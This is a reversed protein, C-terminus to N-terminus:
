DRVTAQKRGLFSRRAMDLSSLVFAITTFLVITNPLYNVAFSASTSLVASIVVSIFSSAAILCIPLLMLDAVGYAVSRRFHLYILLSLILISSYSLLIMAQALPNTSGASSIVGPIRGFASSLGSCFASIRNLLLQFFNPRKNPNFPHLKIERNDYTNSGAMFNDALPKPTILEVANEIRQGADRCTGSAASQEAVWSLGLCLIYVALYIELRVGATTKSKLRRISQQQVTQPPLALEPDMAALEELTYHREGEPKSKENKHLADLEASLTPDAARPGKKQTVPHWDEPKGERQSIISERLEAVYSSTKASLPDEDNFGKPEPLPAKVENREEVSPKTAPTLDRATQTLAPGGLGHKPATTSKSQPDHRPVPTIVPQPSVSASPAVSAAPTDPTVIPTTIPSLDVATQEAQIQPLIPSSAASATMERERLSTVFKAM